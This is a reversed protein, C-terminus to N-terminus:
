KLFNRLDTFKFLVYGLYYLNYVHKASLDLTPKEEEKIQNSEEGNESVPKIQESHDEVKIDAYKRAVLLNLQLVGMDEFKVLKIPNLSEIIRKKVEEDKVTNALKTFTEQNNAVTRNYVELTNNLASTISKTEILVRKSNSTLEELTDELEFITDALDDNKKTLTKIDDEM